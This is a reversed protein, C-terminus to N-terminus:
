DARPRDHLRAAAAYAAPDRFYRHVYFLAPITTLVTTPVAFAALVRSGFGLWAIVSALILGASLWVSVAAIRWWGRAPHLYQQLDRGSDVPAQKFYPNDIAPFAIAIRVSHLVFLIIMLLPTIWKPLSEYIDRGMVWSRLLFLAFVALMSLFFLNAAAFALVQWPKAGPPPTFM